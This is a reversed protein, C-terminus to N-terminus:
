NKKKKASTTNVTSKPSLLADIQVFSNIIFAVPIVIWILNAGYGFWFYLIHDFTFELNRDIPVNKFGSVVESFFFFIAGILQFTSTLIIFPYKWSSAKVIARYTLLCLPAMIFLEVQTILWSTTEDDRFRQDLKTYHNDLLKLFHYGGTLGDMTIHIIAGNFLFWLASHVSTKKTWFGGILIGFFLAVVGAILAPDLLYETLEKEFGAPNRVYELAPAVSLCGVVFLVTPDILVKLLTAM